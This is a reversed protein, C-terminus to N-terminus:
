KGQGSCLNASSDTKPLTSNRDLDAGGVVLLGCREVSTLYISPKM